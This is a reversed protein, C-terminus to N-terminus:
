LDQAVNSPSHLLYMGRKTVLFNLGKFLLQEESQLKEPVGCFFLGKCCKFPIILQGCLGQAGPEGQYNGM